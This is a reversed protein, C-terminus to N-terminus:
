HKEGSNSERIKDKAVLIMRSSHILQEIFEQKKDPHNDDFIADVFGAILSSLACTGVTFGFGLTQGHLAKSLIQHMEAALRAGVKLEKNNM